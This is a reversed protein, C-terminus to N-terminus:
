LGNEKLYDNMILGQVRNGFTHALERAEKSNIAVAEGCLEEHLRLAEATKGAKIVFQLDLAKSYLKEM